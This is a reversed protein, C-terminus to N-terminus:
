RSSSNIARQMTLTMVRSRMGVFFATVGDPTLDRTRVQEPRLRFPRPAQMGGQWDAHMASIAELSAHVARDVPTGTSALIGVIRFPKDAHDVFSVAGTGHSLTIPDGLGYHLKRATTLDSSRM